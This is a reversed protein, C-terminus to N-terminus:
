VSAPTPEAAIGIRERRARAHTLHRYREALNHFTSVGVAILLPLLMIAFYLVVSFM